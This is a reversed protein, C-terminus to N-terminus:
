TRSNQLLKRIIAIQGMHYYSHEIVGGINKLYTGYKPDIFPHDLMIDDLQGVREAFKDANLLFRRVLNLWEEETTIEPLMFSFKDSIELKGSDFAHLLGEVYYNIHFTLAAISNLSDIKQIAQNWGLGELLEKYNTNAIWHGNLYVERLRHALHLNRKM